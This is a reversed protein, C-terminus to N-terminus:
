SKGVFLPQLYLSPNEEAGHALHLYVETTKVSSHGMSRSVALLNAGRQLSHTAYSHRLSHPTIGPRKAGISKLYGAVLAYVSRSSLRHGNVGRDLSLFIPDGADGAGREELYHDLLAQVGLVLYAKREKKGKGMVKLRPDGSAVYDGLSLHSVESVRLGNYYLLALIAADRIGKTTTPDPSRMLAEIEGESLTERKEWPETADRPGRVNAAPNDERLGRARAAEFFRRLVTLKVAITGPTRKEEALHQRYAKLDSETAQGPSIGVGACWRAFEKINYTYSNLTELSPSGSAVEIGLFTALAGRLDQSVLGRLRYEVLAKTDVTM